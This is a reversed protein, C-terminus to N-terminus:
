SCIGTESHRRLRPRRTRCQVRAHRFSSQRMRTANPLRRTSAMRITDGDVTFSAVSGDIQDHLTDVHSGDDVDNATQAAAVIPGTDADIHLKRWPRRRSTGHKEVLWEGAGFLKLGTSDVLLHV